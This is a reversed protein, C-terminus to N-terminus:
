ADIRLSLQYRISFVDCYLCKSVFCLIRVDLYDINRELILHHKSQLILGM